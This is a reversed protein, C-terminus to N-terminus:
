VERLWSNENKDKLFGKKLFSIFQDPTLFPIGLHNEHQLFIKFHDIVMEM